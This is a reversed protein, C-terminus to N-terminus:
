SKVPPCTHFRSPVPHPNEETGIEAEISCAKCNRYGACSEDHDHMKSGTFFQEACAGCALDFGINKCAQTLQEHNLKSGATTPRRGTDRLNKLVTRAKLGGDKESADIAEVLERIDGAMCLYHTVDQGIAERIAELTEGYNDAGSTAIRFRKLLEPAYLAEIAKNYTSFPREITTFCNKLAHEMCDVFVEDNMAPVLAELEWSNCRIESLDESTVNGRRILDKIEQRIHDIPPDGGFILKTM